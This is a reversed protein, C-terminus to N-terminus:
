RISLHMDDYVSFLFCDFLSCLSINGIISCFPFFSIIDAKDAQKQSWITNINNINLRAPSNKEYSVTESGRHDTSDNPVVAALQDEAFVCKLKSDQVNLSKM